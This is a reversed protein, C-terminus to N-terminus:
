APRLLARSFGTEPPEGGLNLRPSGRGHQGFGEAGEKRWINGKESPRETQLSLLKASPRLNPARPLSSSANRAPVGQTETLRYSVGRHKPFLRRPPQAQRRSGRSCRPPSRWGSRTSPPADGVACRPYRLLPIFGGLGGPRRWVRGTPEWGTSM